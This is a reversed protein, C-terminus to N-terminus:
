KEDIQSLAPFPKGELYELSAGGGTSVWSMKDALGFREVAAATDGGGVVATGGASAAEAMSSAVARSGAAFADWEFVGMPGNWVILKSESIIEGFLAVTEPGIDLGLLGDPIAGNVTRPAASKDFREAVVHDLPLLLTCLREECLALLRRADELRDAEVRSAGVAEGRAAMFTYAMAGGVLIVDATKVLNEIVGIKDSVKAGGLVLTYPHSPEASARGLFHLERGFLLGLARSGAPLRSPVGVVSAHARHATGFADNVYLDGLAAIEAAFADGYGPTKGYDEEEAHFRLNELLVARGPEVRDVAERAAPGVCDAALPVPFGLLEGLRLAVPALSQKPDPKGKPRGLHSMLVVRGGRDLLSQITPVAQRIRRDDAIRGAEDLPVNFDVRCLVRKGAPQLDTVTKKAM